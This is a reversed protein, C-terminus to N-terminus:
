YSKEKLLEEMAMILLEDYDKQRELRSKLEDMTLNSFKVKLINVQEAQLQQAREIEPQNDKYITTISPWFSYKTEFPEIPFQDKTLILSSIQFEKNDTTTIQLYSYNSWSTSLRKKNQQYLTLYEIVTLDDFGFKYCNGASVQFTIVRNTTDIFVKLGQSKTWHILHFILTPVIEFAIFAAVAIPPGYTYSFEWSKDKIYHAFPIVLLM